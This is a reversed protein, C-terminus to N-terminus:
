GSAPIVSQGDYEELWKMVTHKKVEFMEAVEAVSYAIEVGHDDM